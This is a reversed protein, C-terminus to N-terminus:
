LCKKENIKITISCVNYLIDQKEFMAILIVKEDTGNGMNDWKRTLVWKWRATM